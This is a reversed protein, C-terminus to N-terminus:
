WLKAQKSAGCETALVKFLVHIISISKQKKKNIEMKECGTLIGPAFVDADFFPAIGIFDFERLFILIGPVVFNFSAHITKMRDM